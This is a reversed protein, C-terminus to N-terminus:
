KPPTTITTLSSKRKRVSVSCNAFAGVAACQESLHTRHRHEHNASNPQLANFTCRLRIATSTTTDISMPNTRSPHNGRTAPAELASDARTSPAHPLQIFPLPDRGFSSLLFDSTRVFSHTTQRFARQLQSSLTSLHRLRFSSYLSSPIM